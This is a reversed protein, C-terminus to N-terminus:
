ERIGRSLTRGRCAGAPARQRAPRRGPASASSGPSFSCRARSRGAARSRRRRKRYEQRRVADLADGALFGDGLAIGFQVLSGGRDVCVPQLVDLRGLVDLRAPPHSDLALAVHDGSRRELVADVIRGARELLGFERQRRALPLVRLRDGPAAMGLAPRKSPSSLYRRNSANKVVQLGPFLSQYM